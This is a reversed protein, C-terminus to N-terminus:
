AWRELGPDDPRCFIADDFAPILANYGISGILFVELGFVAGALPTGFVSGFGAAIGAVLVLKGDRPKLRLIRTFQDSISGGMQFATGERGASRGVLHTAITGTLVFPAMKLPIIKSPQNINELLLNNGAEIEKGFYHYLCGIM